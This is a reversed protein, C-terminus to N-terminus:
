VVGEPYWVKPSLDKDPPFDRNLDLMTQDGPLSHRELVHLPYEAVLLNTCTKATRAYLVRREIDSSVENREKHTNKM